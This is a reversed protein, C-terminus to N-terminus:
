WEESNRGLCAANRALASRVSSGLSTTFCTDHVLPWDSGATLYQWGQVVKHWGHFTAVLVGAIIRLSALGVQSSSDPSDGMGNALYSQMCTTACGPPAPGVHFARALAEQEQAHRTAWAFPARASFPLLLV